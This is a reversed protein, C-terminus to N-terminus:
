QDCKEKRYGGARLVGSRDSPVSHSRMNSRVAKRNAEIRPRILKAGVSPLRRAETPHHWWIAEVDFTQVFIQARSVHERKQILIQRLNSRQHRISLVLESVGIPTVNAQLETQLKHSVSQHCFLLSVRM